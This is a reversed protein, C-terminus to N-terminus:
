PASPRPGHRARSRGASGARARASRRSRGRGSFRYRADVRHDRCLGASVVALIADHDADIQAVDGVVDHRPGLRYWAMGHRGDRRRCQCRLPPPSSQRPRRPRSGHHADIARDGRVRRDQMRRHLRGPAPLPGAPAVVDRRSDFELPAVDVGSERGGVEDDLTLEPRRHGDPSISRLRCRANRLLRARTTQHVVRAREEHAVGAGRDGGRDACTLDNRALDAAAKAALDDDIQVREGPATACPARRHLHHHAAVIHEAGRASM